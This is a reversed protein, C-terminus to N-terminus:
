CFYKTGKLRSFQPLTKVGEGKRMLVPLAQSWSGGQVFQLENELIVTGLNYERQFWKILHSHLLSDFCLM